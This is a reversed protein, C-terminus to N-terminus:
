TMAGAAQMGLGPAPASFEDDIGAPLRLGTEITVDLRMRLEFKRVMMGNEFLAHIAHLAVIGMSGVNELGRVASTKARAGCRSHCPQVFAASLTMAFLGPWDDVFVFSEPFAARDTMLRVTRNRVLHENLPVIIKAELAVGLHVGGGSLDVDTVNGVRGEQAATGAPTCTTVAGNVAGIDVANQAL